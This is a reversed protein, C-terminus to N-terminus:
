QMPSGPRAGLDEAHCEIFTRWQDTTPYGLFISAPTFLQRRLMHYKLVTLWCAIAKGGYIRFLTEKM